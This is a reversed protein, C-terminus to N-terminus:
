AAEELQPRLGLMRCIALTLKARNLTYFHFSEVGERLLSQCLESATTAAVLDRTEPDDDLGEFRAALWDPVVTGCRQSFNRVKGFHFIPLIGPVVPQAIGAARARDRFRLFTEADFFYQSIARAAGADLKRKLNDLDARPSPSDPHSEPYCGVSIDFDGLRRLGAVLDAANEYGRPHPRFPAGLEPMDGRLAVLRGIGAEAWARVCADIEDRSAAVCTIHAAPEALGRELLGGLILDSRDRSTGGAGYTLSVFEPELGALRELAQWFGAEAQPKAPPFFELSIRPLATM